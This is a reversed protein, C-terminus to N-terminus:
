RNGGNHYLEKGIGRGWYVGNHSPPTHSLKQTTVLFPSGRDHGHAEKEFLVLLEVSTPVVKVRVTFGFTNGVGPQPTPIHRTTM